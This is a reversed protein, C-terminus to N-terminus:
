RDKLEAIRAQYESAVCGRMDSAKWCDNRGKVWGRQEAKLTGQRSAPTHKMLTHYLSNLTHDMEALAADKCILLEVEHSAKACDFSPTAAWASSALLGVAIPALVASMTKPMPKTM